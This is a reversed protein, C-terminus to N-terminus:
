SRREPADAGCLAALASAPLVLYGASTLSAHADPPAIVFRGLFGTTPGVPRLGQPDFQSSLEAQRSLSVVLYVDAPDSVGAQASFLSLPGAVLALSLAGSIFWSDKM